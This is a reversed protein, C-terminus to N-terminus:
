IFYLRTVKKYPLRDPDPKIRRILELLPLRLHNKPQQEWDTSGCNLTRLCNELGTSANNVTVATTKITDKRKVASNAELWVATTVTIVGRDVDTVGVAVGAGDGVGIAVRCGEGVLAGVCVDEVGDGVDV